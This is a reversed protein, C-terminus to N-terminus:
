PSPTKNVKYLKWGQHTQPLIDVTEAWAAGKEYLDPQAKNVAYLSGRTEYISIIPKPVLVYDVYAQPNVLAEPYNPDTFDMFIDHKKAGLFIAFGYGYTDMLIRSGKPINRELVEGVDIAQLIESDSGGSAGVLASWTAKEFSEYGYTNIQVLTMYNSVLILAVFVFNILPKGLKLNAKIPTILYIVVLSLVVGFPIVMVLYRLLPINKWYFHLFPILLPMLGLGILFNKKTRWGIVILILSALVELPFVWFWTGFTFGFIGQTTLVPNTIVNTVEALSRANREDTLFYLANGMIFQNAIVWLFMPYLALSSYALLRGELFQGFKENSFQRRKEWSLFLILLGSWASVLAFEYRILPLLGFFAAAFILHTNRETQWFSLLWYFAAMTAAILVAESMGNSGFVLMLPNIAFALVILWRWRVSIGCLAAIKALLVCAISMSLSSVIVIAMWSSFLVPIAALPILLLVPLPPWIFGISSVSFETGNSVLWASVLRALADGPLYGRYFDIYVGLLFYCILSIGGIILTERWSIKM